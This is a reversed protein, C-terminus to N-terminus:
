TTWELVRFVCRFPSIQPVKFNVTENSERLIERSEPLEEARTLGNKM